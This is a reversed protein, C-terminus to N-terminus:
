ARRDADVEEARQNAAVTLPHRLDLQAPPPHAGGRAVDMRGEPRVRGLNGELRAVLREDLAPTLGLPQARDVAALHRRGDTERMEEAPEAQSRFLTTYPFLTSRPPRRIM